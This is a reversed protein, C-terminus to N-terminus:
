RRPVEMCVQNRGQAKGFYLAKDALDLLSVADKADAPFGSIGITITIKGPGLDAIESHFDYEEIAERLKEGAILADHKETEPLIALFEEGGYRALVDAKRLNIEMVEALYKLLADGAIHGQSDNYNKFHDIDIMLLSLARGYRIAREVEKEFYEFFYRRNYLGTLEDRNSLEVTKKFVLANEIAVAVHEAVAAFLRQDSEFFQGPEPKHANLVGMTKGDRFKLPVGLFCGKSLNSGPYYFFESEKSIDKIMLASGNQAVKGAIGEGMDLRIKSVSKSDMGHSARMVLQGSEDDTLMLCYEDLNLSEGIVKISTEFLQDIDMSLSLSRSINYLTYLELLQTNLKRNTELARTNEQKLEELQRQMDKIDKSM